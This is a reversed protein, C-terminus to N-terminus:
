NPWCSAQRTFGPKGARIADNRARIQDKAWPQLISANPDGMEFTPQAGREFFAANSSAQRVDLPPVPGPGSPPPKFPGPTAVWGVAPNPAFDPVSGSEAAGATGSGGVSAGLAIGIILALKSM